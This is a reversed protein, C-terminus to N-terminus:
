IRLIRDHTLIYQVPIDFDENPVHEIMQVEHALAITPTGEKLKPLFRDYYGAGYGIRYGRQDFAVGPVLVLDIIEPSVPRLAEKKPELVGFNGIELDNELDLLESVILEKTKHVTVPIFVRKDKSFLETIIEQTRVENKFSLYLMICQAEQYQNLAKLKNHIKSSNDQIIEYSIAERCELVEKRLQKKLNM